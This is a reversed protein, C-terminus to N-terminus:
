RTVALRVSTGDAGSDIALADSLQRAIWLGTAEDTGDSGPPLYGAFPDDVDRGDNHVECVVADRSEWLTLRATGDGHQMANAVVEGVAILFEEARGAALGLEEIAAAVPHRWGNSDRDVRLRMSPEGPVPLAPEPIERLLLAPDLYRASPRRQGAEWLTPHTRRAADVLQGPLARTDYLCVVWMPLREFARNVIAEYRTWSTHEAATSGFALEAVCRVLPAGGDVLERVVADYEALVAAPRVYWDAAEIYRVKSADAGLADRLLVLKDPSTVAVTAHGLAVGERLFPAMTTVLQENSGYLLADHDLRADTGQTM